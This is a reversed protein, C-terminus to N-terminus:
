TVKIATAAAQVYRSQKTATAILQGLTAEHALNNSIVLLGAVVTAIWTFRATAASSTLCTKTWGAAVRSATGPGLRQASTPM